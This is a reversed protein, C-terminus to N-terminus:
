LLDQDGGLFCSPQDSGSSEGDQSEQSEQSKMVKWGDGKRGGLREGAAPLQGGGGRGMREEWQSLPRCYCLQAGEGVCGFPGRLSYCTM